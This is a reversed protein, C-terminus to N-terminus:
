ESIKQGVAARPGRLRPLNSATALTLYAPSGEAFAQRRGNADAARHVAAHYIAVTASTRPNFTLFLMCCGAFLSFDPTHTELAM